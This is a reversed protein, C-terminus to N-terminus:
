NAKLVTALLMVNSKTADAFEFQPRTPKIDPSFAGDIEQRLKKHDPNEFKKEDNIIVTPVHKVNWLRASEKGQGLFDHETYEFNDEGISNIITPLESRIKQSAIDINSYFLDIKIKETKGFAQLNDVKLKGVESYISVEVNSVALIKGTENWKVTLSTRLKFDRLNRGVGLHKSAVLYEYLWDCIKQTIATNHVRHQYFESKKRKFKRFTVGLISRNLAAKFSDFSGDVIVTNIKLEKIKKM